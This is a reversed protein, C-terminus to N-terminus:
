GLPPSDTTAVHNHDNSSIIEEGPTLREIHSTFQGNQLSSPTRHYLRLTAEFNENERFGTKRIHTYAEREDTPQDTSTKM